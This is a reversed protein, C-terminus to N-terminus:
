EVKRKYLDVLIKSANVEERTWYRHCNIDHLCSVDETPTPLKEDGLLRMCPGGHDLCLPHQSISREHNRISNTKCIKFCRCCAHRCQRYECPCRGKEPVQDFPISLPM